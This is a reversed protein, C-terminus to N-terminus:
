MQLHNSKLEGWRFSSPGNSGLRILILDMPSLKWYKSQNWNKWCLDPCNKLNKYIQFTKKLPTLYANKVFFNFFFQSSEIQTLLLFNETNTWFIGKMWASREGTGKVSINCSPLDSSDRKRKKKEVILCDCWILEVNKDEIKYMWLLKHMCYNM